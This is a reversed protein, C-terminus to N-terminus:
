VRGRPNVHLIYDEELTENRHLNVLRYKIKALERTSPSRDRLAILITFRVMISYISFPFYYLCPRSSNRGRIKQYLRIMMATTSDASSLLNM